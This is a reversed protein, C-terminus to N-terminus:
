LQFRAESSHVVLRDEARVDIDDVSDKHYDFVQVILERGNWVLDPDGKLIATAFGIARLRAEAALETGQNNEDRLHGEINFFYRPIIKGTSALVLLLLAGVVQGSKDGNFSM